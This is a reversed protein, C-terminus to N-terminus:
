CRTLPPSGTLNGGDTGARALMSLTLLMSRLEAEGDQPHPPSGAPIQIEAGTRLLHDMILNQSLELVAPPVATPVDSSSVFRTRFEERGILEAIFERLGFGPDEKLRKPYNVYGQPGPSRGLVGSFVEEVLLRLFEPDARMTVTKFDAAGRLSKASSMSVAGELTSLRQRVELLQIHVAWLRRPLLVLAAVWRFPYGLVNLM